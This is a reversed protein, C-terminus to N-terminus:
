KKMAFYRAKRIYKFFVNDGVHHTYYWAKDIFRYQGEDCTSLETYLTTDIGDQILVVGCQVPKNFKDQSLATKDYNIAVIKGPRNYYLEDKHSTRCSCGTCVCAILVIIKKM